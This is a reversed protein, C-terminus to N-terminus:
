GPSGDRDSLLLDDLLSRRIDDSLPSSSHQYTATDVAVMATLRSNVLRDRDKADVTFRIWHATGISYDEPRNTLMAAPLSGDGLRLRVDEGRLRQWGAQEEAWRTEDAVENMLAAQLCDRTPLLRNYVELEQQVREPDALRAIRLVEQM